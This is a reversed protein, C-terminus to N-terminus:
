KLKYLSIGSYLSCFKEIDIFSKLIWIIFPLIFATYPIVLSLITDDLQYTVLIIFLPIIFLITPLFYVSILLGLILSGVLISGTILISKKM